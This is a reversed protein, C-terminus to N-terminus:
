GQEVQALLTRLIGKCNSRRGAPTASDLARAFEVPSELTGHARYRELGTRVYGAVTAAPEVCKRDLSSLHRQVSVVDPDAAAVPGGRWAEVLQRAASRGGSSPIPRSAEAVSLKRPGRRRKPEPLSQPTTSAPPATTTPAPSAGTSAGATSPVTASSVTASASAAGTASTTGASTSSAAGDSSGDPSSAASGCGALAAALLLGILASSRM